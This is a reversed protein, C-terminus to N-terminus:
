NLASFFTAAIDITIPSPIAAKNHSNSKKSSHPIFIKVAWNEYNKHLLFNNCCYEIIVLCDVPKCVFQVCDM